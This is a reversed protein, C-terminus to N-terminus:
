RTEGMWLYRTQETLDRELPDLIHHIWTVRRRFEPGYKGGGPRTAWVLGHTLLYDVLTLDLQFAAWHLTVTHTRARYRVWDEGTDAVSIAPPNGALGLGALRRLPDSSTAGLIRGAAFATGASTYLGIIADRAEPGQGLNAPLRLWRQGDREFWPADTGPTGAIVNRRTETIVAALRDGALISLRSSYGLWSFGEGGAIQAVKFQPRVEIARVMHHVIWRAKARIVAAVWSPDVCPPVTIVLVAHRTITLGVRTTRLSERVEREWGAPLRALGWAETVAAEVEPATV